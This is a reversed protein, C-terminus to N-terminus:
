VRGGSVFVCLLRCLMLFWTLSVVVVSFKWYSFPLALGVLQLSLSEGYDKLLSTSSPPESLKNGDDSCRDSNSAGLSLSAAM